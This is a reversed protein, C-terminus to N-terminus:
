RMDIESNLIPKNIFLTTKGYSNERYKCRSRMSALKTRFSTDVIKVNIDKNEDCSVMKKSPLVEVNRVTNQTVKLWRFLLLPTNPEIIGFVGIKLWV